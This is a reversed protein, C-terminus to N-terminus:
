HEDNIYDELLAKYKAMRTVEARIEATTWVEVFFYWHIFEISISRGYHCYAIGFGWSDWKGCGFKLKM